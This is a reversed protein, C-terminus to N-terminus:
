RRFTLVKGEPRAEAATYSVGDVKLGQPDLLTITGGRNSLAVGTMPVALVAGPTLWADGALGRAEGLTNVIQWGALSLGEGSRNMLYVTEPQGRSTPRNEVGVPNVLAGSIVVRRDPDLLVPPPAARPSPARHGLHRAFTAAGPLPHGQLGDTHMAQSAFATFLGEFRDDAEYHLIVAGDQWPGNFQAFRATSGQNMHIDHLGQRDAFPEGLLYVTARRAIAAQLEPLVFDIIDNPARGPLDHPLIRGADFDLINSRIYDLAAGGPRSELPTFGPPLRRLADTIPHRLDPIHWYVLESVESLSKVNISARKSGAFSGGAGDDFYLHIHPSTADQEQREASVRVPTAKWVGYNIIPM